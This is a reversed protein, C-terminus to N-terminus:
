KFPKIWIFKVPRSSVLSCACLWGLQCPWPSSCGPAPLPSLCSHSFCRGWSACSSGSFFMWGHSLYASPNGFPSQKWKSCNLLVSYDGLSSLVRYISSICDLIQTSLVESFIWCGTSACDFILATQFYFWIGIKPASYICGVHFFFDGWKVSVCSLRQLGM